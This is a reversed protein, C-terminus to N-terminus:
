DGDAWWGPLLEGDGECRPGFVLLDLGDPGAEFQRTVAPSVRLADMPGLELIRDDVKVRGSGSLVVYVEEAEEHRHGFPQRKGPRLRHYAIGTREAGLSPGPFRAEQIEGLGFGPASDEIRNLNELQYPASM